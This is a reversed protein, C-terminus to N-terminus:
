EKAASALIGPNAILLQHVARQHSVPLNIRFTAGGGPRNECMLKGGHEQIIGYCASLGLGTGQGAPKTTYFPDFVREPEQMGPGNDSFELWVQGGDERTSVTLVGGTVSMAYLANNTIHLCVQLLQNSDGLVPPLNPALDTRVQVNAARLQPQSLKVATTTLANLDLLSKEAPLQKAFSLLSSVLAKTRRVQQGIKAALARQEANLPTEALIESYGLMATLPNNLEHAAGGVLQGLSALKESQVLQVQLRRLNEFSEESARLLGILEGDLMHQKRFVMVGIILMCALTVVLRFTRVRAPTSTDFVSWAAFLPLSFIAIMGLRAVWVGHSSNKPAPQEKPALKYALVGLVTFWAMSAALPFDYLSGSYYKNLGIAWNAVYSSSAYMLSAGFIHTYITRWAGTSRFWVLVLGSLFAIKEALYMANLNQGYFVRDTQVYQWPIVSYLYLYFWWVMLLAFDLSGLRTTRDDQARHPQLALAAMMPVLHLVLVIDGTFVEPVDQRQIVEIFTWLLQYSLWFTLGIMMLIWFLRARGRTAIVNPLFSLAGSLLLICQIVDSFVLLKFDQRLFVSATAQAFVLGIAAGVWLKSRKTM